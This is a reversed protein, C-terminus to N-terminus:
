GGLGNKGASVVIFARSQVKEKVGKAEQCARTNGKIASVQTVHGKRKLVTLIFEEKLPLQRQKDRVM